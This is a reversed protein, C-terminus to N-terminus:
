IVNFIVLASGTFEGSTEKKLETADISAFLNVSGTYGVKVTVDRKNSGGPSDLSLTVKIQQKNQPNVLLISNGGSRNADTFILRATAQSAYDGDCVLSATIGATKSEQSIVGFDIENNSLGAVRCFVNVPPIPDVPPLTGETTSGLKLTYGNFFEFWVAPKKCGQPPHIKGRMPLKDRILKNIEDFSNWRNNGVIVVSQGTSIDKACTVSFASYVILQCPYIDPCYVGWVPHISNSGGNGVSDGGDLTVSTFNYDVTVRNNLWYLDSFSGEVTAAYGVGSVIFLFLATLHLPM